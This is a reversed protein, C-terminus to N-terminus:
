IPCVIVRGTGAKAGILSRVVGLREAFLELSVGTEGPLVELAPLRVADAGAACLEDLTEDAEDLHAVVYVVTRGSMKAMAGAFFASSSGQSGRVLVRKGALAHRSTEKVSDQESM